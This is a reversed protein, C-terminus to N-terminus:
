KGAKQNTDTRHLSVVEFYYRIKHKKRLILCFGFAQNKKTLFTHIRLKSKTGSIFSVYELM